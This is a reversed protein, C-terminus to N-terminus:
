SMHGRTIGSAGASFGLRFERGRTQIPLLVKCLLCVM